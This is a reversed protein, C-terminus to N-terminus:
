GSRLAERAASAEVLSDKEQFARRRLGDATARTRAGGLRRAADAPAMGRRAGYDLAVVPVRDEALRKGGGEAAGRRTTPARESSPAALVGLAARVSAAEGCSIGSVGSITSGRRTRATAATSHNGLYERGSRM